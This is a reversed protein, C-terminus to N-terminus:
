RGEFATLITRITPLKDLGVLAEPDSAVGNIRLEWHLHPGTALGTMGVTGLLYGRPVIEGYSVTMTELHMYISYMGPLHELVVTKGTVIRDQAMVVRGRGAAVVPTGTPCGYDIGAHMTRDATGDAYLYRRGTGFLSTRRDCELPMIFGSDLYVSDPNVTALLERYLLAQRTKEAEVATRIITLRRDLRLDERVFSRDVIETDVSFEMGGGPGIVSAVAPGAAADAPVTVLFMVPLRVHTMTAAVPGIATGSAVHGGARFWRGADFPRIVDDGPLREPLPLGVSPPTMRGDPLRLRMSWARELLPVPRRFSLWVVFSAQGVRPRASFYVMGPGPQPQTDRPMWSVHEPIEPTLNQGSGTEHVGAGAHVAGASVASVQVPLMMISVFFM